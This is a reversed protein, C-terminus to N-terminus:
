SENRIFPEKEPNAIAWQRFIEDFTPRLEDDVSLGISTQMEPTQWYVIMKTGKELHYKLLSIEDELHKKNSEHAPKDKHSSWFYGDYEKLEEWYQELTSEIHGNFTFLFGDQDFTYAVKYLYVEMISRLKVPEKGWNHVILENSNVEYNM